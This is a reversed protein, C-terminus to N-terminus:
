VDQHDVLPLIDLSPHRTVYRELEARLRQGEEKLTGIEKRAAEEAEKAADAVAALEEEAAKRAAIKEEEARNEQKQKEADAKKMAAAQEMRAAERGAEAEVKAAEAGELREKSIKLWEVLGEVCEEFGGEAGFVKPGGHGSWGPGGGSSAALVDSIIGQKWADEQGRMRNRCNTNLTHPHISDFTPPRRQTSKCRPGPPVHIVTPRTNSKPTNQNTHIRCQQPYRRQEMLSSRCRELPTLLCDLVATYFELTKDALRAREPCNIQVQLMVENKCLKFLYGAEHCRRSLM